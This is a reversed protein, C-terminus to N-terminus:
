DDIVSWEGEDNGGVWMSTLERDEDLRLFRWLRSSTDYDGEDCIAMMVQSHGWRWVQGFKPLETAEAVRITHSM